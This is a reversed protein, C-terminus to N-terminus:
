QPKTNSLLVYEAVNKHGDVTRKHSVIDHGELRLEGVRASPNMIDLHTRAYRTTLHLGRQLYGLIIARQTIVSHDLNAEM